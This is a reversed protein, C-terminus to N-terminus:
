VSEALGRVILPLVETIFAEDPMTELSEFRRRLADIPVAVTGHRTFRFLVYGLTLEIREFESWAYRQTGVPGVHHIGAASFNRRGM